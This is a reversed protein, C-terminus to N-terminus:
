AHFCIEASSLVARVKHHSHRRDTSTCAKHTRTHRHFCMLTIKFHQKHMGQTHRHADTATHRHFCMLTLKQFTTSIKGPYKQLVSPQEEQIQCLLVACLQDQQWFVLSILCCVSSFRYTSGQKPLSPTPTPFVIYLFM